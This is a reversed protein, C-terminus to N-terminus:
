VWVYCHTVGCFLLVYQSHFLKSRSAWTEMLRARMGVSRRSLAKDPLTARGTGCMCTTHGRAVAPDFLQGDHLPFAASYNGHLLLDEIGIKQRKYWERSQFKTRLLIDWVLLSRDSQAFDADEARSVEAVAFKSHKKASYPAFYSACELNESPIIDRAMPLWRSGATLVGNTIRNLFDRADSSLSSHNEDKRRTFFGRRIQKVHTASLQLPWRFVSPHPGKSFTCM